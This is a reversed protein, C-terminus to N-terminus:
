TMDLHVSRCHTGDSTPQGIVHVAAALAVFAFTHVSPLSQYFSELFTPAQETTPAASSSSASAAGWSLWSPWSPWSLWSSGASSPAEASFATPITGTFAGDASPDPSGPRSPQPSNPTNSMVEYQSLYAYAIMEEDEDMDMNLFFSTCSDYFTSVWLSSDAHTADSLTDLPESLPWEPGAASVNGPTQTESVAHGLAPSPESPANEVEAPANITITVSGAAPASDTATSAQTAQSGTSFWSSASSYLWNIWGQPADTPALATGAMEGQTPFASSTSNTHQTSPQAAGAQLKGSLIPTAGVQQEHSHSTQEPM